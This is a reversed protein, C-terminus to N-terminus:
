IQRVGLFIWVGFCFCCYQNTQHSIRKPEILFNRSFELINKYRSKSGHRICSYEPYNGFNESQVLVFREDFYFYQHKPTHINQPEFIIFFNSPDSKDSSWHTPRVGGSGQGQFIVSIVGCVPPHGHVWKGCIIDRKRIRFYHYNKPRILIINTIYTSLSGRNVSVVDSNRTHRPQIKVFIEYCLKKAVFIKKENNKVTSRTPSDLIPGLSAKSHWNGCIRHRVSSVNNDSNTKTKNKKETTKEGLFLKLKAEVAWYLVRSLRVELQGNRLKKSLSVEHARYRSNWCFFFFFFFEPVSKPSKDFRFSFIRGIQWIRWLAKSSAWALRSVRPPCVTLIIYVLQRYM